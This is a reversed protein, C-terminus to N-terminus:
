AVEREAAQEALTLRPFTIPQGAFHKWRRLLYGATETLEPSVKSYIKSNVRLGIATAMREFGTRDNTLPEALTQCNRTVAHETLQLLFRLWHRAKAADLTGQHYRYEVRPATDTVRTLNCGFYRSQGGLRDRYEALTKCPRLDPLRGGLPMCYNNRRRSPALLGYLVPEVRTVLAALSRIAKPRETVEPLSVHVHHGTSTNVRAGMYKAIDLTKPVIREWQDIGDLIRTKIEVAHWSVGAYRTEGQVSSDYEVALDVGPPLPDHSYGRPIARLGNATLVTALTRQVDLSCGTGVLPVTMEYECGIRRTRNLEASLM